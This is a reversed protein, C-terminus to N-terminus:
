GLTVPQLLDHARHDLAKAIPHGGRADEGGFSIEDGDNLTLDISQKHENDVVHM